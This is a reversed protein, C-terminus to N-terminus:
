LQEIIYFTTLIKLYTLFTILPSSIVPLLLLCTSFLNTFMLMAELNTLLDSTKLM